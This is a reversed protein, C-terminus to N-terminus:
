ESEKKETVLRNRGHEKGYYLLNDVEKVAEDSSSYDFVDILGFTMTVHLSEAIYSLSNNEIKQLLEQMLMKHKEFSGYTFIILFEEGGWRVCQGYDKLHDQMLRSVERLVIDGCDHGYSDNFKKFFDIDGLALSFHTKDGKAKNFIKDLKEQGCRRNSLGTLMDQEVLVRLAKQMDIISHAMTGFEDKRALLSPSITNSLKGNSTENLSVSLNQIVNIFNKSYKRAWFLTILIAFIAVVLIPLTAKLILINVRQAPMVAGIMGICSGDSNDLPYYYCYYSTNNIKINTYFHSTNSNIVDSVIQSNAPTGILRNGEADCITTIIRMDNYFLTFDVSTSEKQADILSYNQNIIFEGKTVLISDENKYMSYDGPYMADLCNVTSKALNHLENEVETAMSSSIHFFEFITIIVSFLILPLITMRALISSIGSKSKEM